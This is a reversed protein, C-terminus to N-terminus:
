PEFEFGQQHVAPTIRAKYAAFDEGEHWRPLRCIATPEVYPQPEFCLTVEPGAAGCPGMVAQIEETAKFWEGRVRSGAHAAHLAEELAPACDTLWGGVLTLKDASGTQMSALRHLPDNAIGIKIMDMQESRIFYVTRLPRHERKGM